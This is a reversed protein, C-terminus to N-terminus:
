PKWQISRQLSTFPRASPSGASFRTSLRDGPVQGAALLKRPRQAYGAKLQPFDPIAQAIGIGPLSACLPLACAANIPRHRTITSM